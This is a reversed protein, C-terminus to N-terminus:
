HSPPVVFGVTSAVRILCEILESYSYKDTDTSRMSPVEKKGFPTDIVKTGYCQKLIENHMEDPTLGVFNAFERCWKRYYGEQSRTRQQKSKQTEFFIGNQFRHIISKLICFLFRESLYTKKHVESWSEINLFDIYYADFMQHCKSCLDAICIDHPKIGTGKGFTHSRFGQYHAGVVTKDQAGCYSCPVDKSAKLWKPSRLNSHSIMKLTM